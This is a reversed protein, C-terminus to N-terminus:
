IRVYESCARETASKVCQSLFRDYDPEPLEELMRSGTPLAELSVPVVKDGLVLYFMGDREVLRGIVPEEPSLIVWYGRGDGRV